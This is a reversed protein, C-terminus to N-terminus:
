EIVGFNGVVWVFDILDWFWSEEVKFEVMGSM